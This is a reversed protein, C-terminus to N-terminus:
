AATRRPIWPDSRTKGAIWDRLFAEVRGRTLSPDSDPHIFAYNSYRRMDGNSGGRSFVIDADDTSGKPAATVSWGDMVDLEGSRIRALTSSDREISVSSDGRVLGGTFPSGDFPVCRFLSCSRLRRGSRLRLGADSVRSTWARVERPKLGMSKVADLAAETHAMFRAGSETMAGSGFAAMGIGPVSAAGAAAAMGGIAERRNM